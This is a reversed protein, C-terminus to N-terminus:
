IIKIMMALIFVFLLNNIENPPIYDIVIYFLYNGNDVVTVPMNNIDGFFVELPIEINYMYEYDSSFTWTFFDKPLIQSPLNSWYVDGPYAIGSEKNEREFIGCWMHLNKIEKKILNTDPPNSWSSVM